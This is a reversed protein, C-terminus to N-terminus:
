TAPDRPWEGAGRDLRMGSTRMVGTGFRDHAHRRFARGSMVATVDPDPLCPAILDIHQPGSHPM